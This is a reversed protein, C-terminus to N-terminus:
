DPVDGVALVVGAQQWHAVFADVDGHDRDVAAATVHVGVLGGEEDPLHPWADGDGHVVAHPRVLLVAGGGGEVGGEELVGQLTEAAGGHHLHQLWALDRHQLRLDPTTLLVALCRTPLAVAPPLSPKLNHLAAFAALAVPLLCRGPLRRPSM